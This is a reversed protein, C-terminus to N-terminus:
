APQTEPYDVPAVDMFERAQELTVVDAGGYPGASMVRNADGTYPYFKGDGNSFLELPQGERKRFVAQEREYFVESMKNGKKEM